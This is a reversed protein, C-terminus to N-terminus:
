GDGSRESAIRLDSPETIKINAPDGPIVAVRFGSRELLAADDTAQVNDREADAHARRLVALRFAQPTQVAVMGYRSITELVLGDEVRKLTDVVPIGPVAGDANELAVLVADFLGVSARPRATDHCVVSDLDNGDGLAELGLAVSRQRTPGGAIVKVGGGLLESTREEWGAPVTVVVTTIRRCARVTELAIAILPRGDLEVFAKPMRLGLREGSGAALLIAAAGM